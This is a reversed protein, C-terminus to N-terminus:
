HPAKTKLLAVVAARQSETMHLATKKLLNEFAAIEEVSGPYGINQNKPMVNSDALKKGKADLFVYFPLGSQEGGLKKMIEKGGPNELTEVKGGSELVDLRAIVYNEEMAEKVAPDELIADLRKCWGCWSAHFLLLVNKQSADAQQLASTLIGEAGAPKKEQGTLSFLVLFMPLVVSTLIRRM